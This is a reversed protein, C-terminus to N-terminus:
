VWKEFLKCEEPIECEKAISMLENKIVMRTEPSIVSNYLIGTTHILKQRKDSWLFKEYEGLPNWSYLRWFDKRLPSEGSGVYVFRPHKAIKQILVDDRNDIARKICFNDDISVDVNESHDLIISLIEESVQNLVCSYFGGGGIANPCWYGRDLDIFDIIKEFDDVSIKHNNLVVAFGDYDDNWLKIHSKQQETLDDM